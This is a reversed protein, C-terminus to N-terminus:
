PANRKFFQKPSEHLSKKTLATAHGDTTFSGRLEVLNVGHVMFAPSTRCDNECHINALSARQVDEMAVTPRHDIETCSFTSDCLDFGDIRGAVLAYAPTVPHDSSNFKSNAGEIQVLADRSTGTGNFQMRIGSLSINRLPSQPHGALLIGSKADRGAPTNIPGIGRYRGIDSGTIDALMVNQITGPVPRPPSPYSEELGTPYTGQGIMMFIPEAVTRMTIGRVQISDMAAGDTCQFTIGAGSHHICCNSVLIDEFGGFCEAGFRIANCHSSVTCNTVTVRRLPRGGTSKFCIGDDESDILCDSIRVNECADIDIGDTNYNPSRTQITLGHVVVDECAMLHLTWFASDLLRFTELRIRKCNVLRLLSPRNQYRMPRDWTQQKFAASAGCGNITGTGSITVDEVQDAYILAHRFMPNFNSAFSPTQPPFADLDELARLESGGELHLRVYSRLFLTGTLYTGPMLRVTGGGADACADIAQQISNTCVKLGDAKAGYHCPDFTNHTM